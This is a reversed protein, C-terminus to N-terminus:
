KAVSWTPVWLGRSARGKGKNRGKWTPTISHCNPCLLSLNSPFNNTPDGDKHEIELSLRHGRWESAGCEECKWGRTRELYRRLTCREKCLGAEIKSNSSELRNLISCNSSCFKSDKHGRYEEGCQTCKKSFSVRRQKIGASKHNKGRALNNFTAACSSSCFVKKRMHDEYSLDKQCQKCKVPNKSYSEKRIISMDAVTPNSVGKSQKHRNLASRTGYIRAPTCCNCKFM